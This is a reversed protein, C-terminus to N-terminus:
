QSERAASTRVHCVSRRCRMDFGMPHAPPMRMELWQAHLSDSVHWRKQITRLTNRFVVWRCAAAAKGTDGSVQPSAQCHRPARPFTKVENCPHRQNKETDGGGAIVCLATHVDSTEIHHKFCVSCGNQSHKLTESTRPTHLHSLAQSAQRNPHTERGRQNTQKNNQRDPQKNTERHRGRDTAGDTQLDGKTTEPRHWTVDPNGVHAIDHGLLGSHRRFFRFNEQAHM